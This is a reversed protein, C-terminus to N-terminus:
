QLVLEGFPAKARYVFKDDQNYFLDNKICNVAELILINSKSNYSAIAYFEINFIKRLNRYIISYIMEDLISGVESVIDYLVRFAKNRKELVWNIHENPFAVKEDSIM